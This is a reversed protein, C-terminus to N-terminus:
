FHLEHLCGTKRNVFACVHVSLQLSEAVSFCNTRHQGGSLAVMNMFSVSQLLPTGPWPKREWKSDTNRKFKANGNSNIPIIIAEM